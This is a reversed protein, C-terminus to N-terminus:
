FRDNLGLDTALRQIEEDVSSPTAAHLTADIEARSPADLGSLKSRRESLKVFSNIARDVPITKLVYEAVLASYWYDCRKLEDRRAEVNTPSPISDGWENVLKTAEEVTVGLAEGIEFDDQGSVRMEYAQRALMTDM